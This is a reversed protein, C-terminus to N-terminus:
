RSFASMAELLRDPRLAHATYGDAGVMTEAGLIANLIAEQVAEIVAAFLPSIASNPLVDLSRMEEGGFDFGALPQPATSFAIAFEGSQHHGYAGNRSVGLTARHALRRCQEPLLPADTAIAILISNKHSGPADVGRSTEMGDGLPVETLPIMRGVPVGNVEFEDRGAHNAQVLAGVTYDHAGIPVTRSSTGIGGKFGHSITGTGGGVNGEAVEASASELAELVHEERVHLGSIDNLLGDWTEGVVPLRELVGRRRSEISVLADRVTGVSHSNTMCVPGYLTGTEEIFHLGTFEGVGNLTFTGAFLPEEWVDGQHPIVATIGTRVPGDGIVLDGSGRIITSHGVTVGAVDAISNRVGTAFRGVTLGTERLRTM